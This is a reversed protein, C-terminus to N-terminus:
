TPTAVAAIAQYVEAATTTFLTAPRVTIGTPCAIRRSRAAMAGGAADPARTLRVYRASIDVVPLRAPRSIRVTGTSSRRKAGDSATGGVRVDAQLDVLAAELGRPSHLSSSRQRAVWQLRKSPMWKTPSPAAHSGVGAEPQKPTDAVHYVACAM